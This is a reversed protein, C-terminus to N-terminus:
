ISNVIKNQKENSKEGGKWEGSLKTRQEYPENQWKVSSIHRKIASLHMKFTVCMFLTWKKDKWVRPTWKICYQSTAYTGSDFSIIIIM